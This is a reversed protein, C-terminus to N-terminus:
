VRDQHRDGAAVVGYQGYLAGRDVALATPPTLVLADIQPAAACDAHAARRANSQRGSLKSYVDSMMGVWSTTYGPRQCLLAGGWLVVMHLLPGALALHTHTADGQVREEPVALAHGDDRAGATFALVASWLLWVVLLVLHLLVKRWTGPPFPNITYAVKRDGEQRCDCFSPNV